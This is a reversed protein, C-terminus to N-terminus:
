LTFWSCLAKDILSGLRSTLPERSPVVNQATTCSQTVPNVPLPQLAPDLETQDTNTDGTAFSVSRSGFCGTKGELSGSVSQNHVRASVCPKKHNRLWSAKSM